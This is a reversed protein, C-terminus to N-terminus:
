RPLSKMTEIEELIRDLKREIEQLRQEVQPAQIRPFTFNGWGQKFGVELYKAEVRLDQGAGRFPFPPSLEARLDTGNGRFTAPGDAWAAAGAMLVGALGLTLGKM